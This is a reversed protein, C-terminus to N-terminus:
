RRMLLMKDQFDLDFTRTPLLQGLLSRMLGHPGAFPGNSATHLGCFFTLTITGREVLLSHTVKACFYSMVSLSKLAV